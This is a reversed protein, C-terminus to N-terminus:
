SPPDHHVGAALERYRGQGRAANLAGGPEAVRRQIKGQCGLSRCIEGVKMGQALVAEAERPMGIIKEDTFQKRSM